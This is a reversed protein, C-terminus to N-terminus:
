TRAILGSGLRYIDRLFFSTVELLLDDDLSVESELVGMSDLLGKIIEFSKASFFKLEDDPVPIM